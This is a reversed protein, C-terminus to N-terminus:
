RIPPPTVGPPLPQRGSAEPTAPAEPSPMPAPATAAAPPASPPAATAPPPQAARDLDAILRDSVRPDIPLHNAAQFRIIADRTKPGIAGDAPGGLFGLQRLATQAAAIPNEGTEAAGAPAAARRYARLARETKASMVGNIPGPDYGLGALRAQLDAIPGPGAATAAAACGLSAALAAGFLLRRINRPMISVGQMGAGGRKVDSFDAASNFSTPPSKM